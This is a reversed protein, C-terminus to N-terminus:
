LPYSRVNKIEPFGLITMSGNEDISIEVHNANNIEYNRYRETLFRIEQNTSGIWQRDITRKTSEYRGLILIDCWGLIKGMGRDEIEYMEYGTFLMTTFGACKCRKLLEFIEAYQDLPEGGLITVGEVFEREENIREFVEAVSLVINPEFGWM